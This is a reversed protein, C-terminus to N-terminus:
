MDSGFIKGPNLIGAPDVAKKVAKMFNVTQPSLDMAIFEQKAVGVGHEGSLTGGLCVAAEFIARIAGEAREMELKNRKDTLINPHLNGDGAHGFIVIPLNFREGIKRIERIMAPIASRPVSIDEGIKTPRVRSIAPSVARRAKWLQDAEESDCAIKFDDVMMKRCAAAVRSAEAEVAEPMGDVEIILMAEAHRPLGLGLYDEVYNISKQDMLELASPVVGSYLIATVTEAARDLSNFAASMTRRAPPAPILRLTVETFIGLTGESGVFFQVFNYGTVNKIQKGGLRVVDGGPLVVELGLVYDKTVGYKIGRPGGANEAVNGGITCFALSSPDPPYFLGEREAAKQLDGTIVGPGCVAVMNERDIERIKDMGALVLAIGGAAPLSGGSLGTGAGRPVVPVGLRVALKLVESVEAASGAKVVVGPLSQRTTADYAYVIRAELADLVRAPDIIKKLERVLVGPAASAPM